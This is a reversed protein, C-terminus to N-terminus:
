HLPWVTMITPRQQQHVVPGSPAAMVPTLVTPVPAVILKQNSAFFLTRGDISIAGAIPPFPCTQSNLAPVCSPYDPIDFYGLIPLSVQPTTSDFVFVRPTIVSPNSEADDRYALVYVRTGDPTVQGNRAYYNQSPMNATGILNFQGDRVVSNDFLVRDGSDSLSYYDSFNLAAPNVRIVSDAANMYLMPPAPSVSQSQTMILREGDRSMGFWPGDYFFPTPQINTVGTPSLSGPALYNLGAFPPNNALGFWSRGDNTTKIGFGLYTFSPVLALNVSASQLTALTAPDLRRITSTSASSAATALLTAGDQTLGVDYAKAFLASSSIWSGGSHTFSMISEATINAAYLADREPDYALSRPQGGTAVTAYAYSPTVVAVVNSTAAASGLANSVGVTHSGASLPTSTIIMETDNVVVATNISAGQLVARAAPLTISNFGSGRLIVRTPQGAVQVYPGVSTVQPLNKNLTVHFTVPSMTAVSPTITVAATSTAGNPLAAFQTLDVTYALSDSTQGTSNTLHLWSVNSAASWPVAGGSADNVPVSGAMMAVTTEANVVITQDAPRVLGTGVTLAVPIVVDKGPYAGHVRVNATYSGASLMAASATVQQGGSTATFTLWNSAAASPYEATVTVNPDWSPPTATLTASATGGETTSLTLALPDVTLLHDGGAPPTVTYNIPISVLDGGSTLQVMSTYTGSPMSAAAVTISTATKTVTLWPADSGVVNSNFSTAGTPLQVTVTQSTGAGSVASLTVASPSATLGQRVNISYTLNLPSNGVQSTCSADPCALLQIQGTYSGVALGPAVSIQAVATYGNVSIPITSSIGPGNVKAGVYLTGSYQGTATITVFQVSPASSTSYDFILSTKDATFFLSGSGGGGSGGGGGCSSVLFLVLIALARVPLWYREM